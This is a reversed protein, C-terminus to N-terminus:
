VVCLYLTPLVYLQQINYKNTCRTVLLNIGEAWTLKPRGRKRGGSPRWEPVGKPLGGEEMRRVTRVTPTTENKVDDLLSRTVNMKDKIVNNRIKEKRSIRASRRWFEMETSKLKPTTRPKLLVSLYVPLVRSLLNIGV